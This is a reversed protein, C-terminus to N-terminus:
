KICLPSSLTACPSIPMGTTMAQVRPPAPLFYTIQAVFQLGETSHLFSLVQSCPSYGQPSQPPHPSPPSRAVTCFPHPSLQLLLVLLLVREM